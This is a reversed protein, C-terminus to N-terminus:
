NTLDHSFRRLNEDAGRASQDIQALVEVQVHLLDLILDQVLAVLHEVHAEVPVDFSQLFVVRIGLTHDEGRRHWREDLVQRTLFHLLGKQNVEHARISVLNGVADFVCDHQM